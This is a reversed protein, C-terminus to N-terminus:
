MSCVASGDPAMWQPADYLTPDVGSLAALYIISNWGITQGCIMIMYPARFAGPGAADQPVGFFALLTSM